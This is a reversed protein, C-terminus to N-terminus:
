KKKEIEMKSPVAYLEEIEPSEKRLWDLMTMKQGGKTQVMWPNGFITTCIKDVMQRKTTVRFALFFAEKREGAAWDSAKKALSGKSSITTDSKEIIAIVSDAFKALTIPTETGASPHSPVILERLAGVDSTLKVVSNTSKEINDLIAPLKEKVLANSERAEGTLKVLSDTGKKTNDLIAPLKEKVLANSERIEATTAKLDQKLDYLTFCVFGSVVVALAFYLWKM